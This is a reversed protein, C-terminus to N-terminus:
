RSKLLTEIHLPTLLKDCTPKYIHLYMCVLSIIASKLWAVKPSFHCWNEGVQYNEKRSSLTPLSNSIWNQSLVVIRLRSWFFTSLIYSPPLDIYLKQPFWWTCKRCKCAQIVTAFIFNPYLTSSAIVFNVILDPHRIQKSSSPQEWINSNHHRNIM